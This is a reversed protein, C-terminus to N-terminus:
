SRDPPDGGLLAIERDRLDARRVKGADDRLPTSVCRFSRPIKYRVLREALFTRLEEDSLAASTQVVAHVRQGLDGDPLGVVVCGTVDPHATVAAEVEAPYINAGGSIILDVRRDHLYLYGDADTSGFDGISEWGDRERADAGVYRYTPPTGPDRRMFIEGIEGPGLEAGDPGLVRMEGLAPRGVSGRHALWETGSIVTVAQGETGGYMEMLREPGVLEIWAEKLWAPCPAATHWVVRLSSLDYRGPQEDLVRWIRQMMTPVFQVWDVRHREIAELAAVADFRPLLVVHNGLFAGTAGMIFPANHHMPGPVLQVGGPRMGVREALQSTVAGSAGAVILKPRGTSGGSTMAKWSPSVAVPDIPAASVTPDPEYGSPLAPRDVDDASAGLVLAPDALAIIEAREAAPLAPSVPQPVAGLKWVAFLAAVFEVSNGLAITVFRGQTVGLDRYVRALRNAQAELQARTVTLDGCTIMPRDPEAAALATLLAGAPVPAAGLTPASM